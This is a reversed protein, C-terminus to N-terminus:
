YIVMYVYLKQKLWMWAGIIQIKGDHIWMNWDVFVVGRMLMQQGVMDDSFDFLMVFYVM